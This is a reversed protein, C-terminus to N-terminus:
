RPLFKWTRNNKIGNLMNKTAYPFINQVERYTKGEKFLNIIRIVENETLKARGHTQGTSKNLGTQHALRTNESATVWELNDLSNNLKNGDIHNVTMDEMNDIPCYTIMLLRHIGFRSYGNKNNRLSLCVYGDKDFHTKMYDKKSYSYVNGNEEIAYLGDKIKSYTIDKM